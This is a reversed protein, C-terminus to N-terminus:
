KVLVPQGNHKASEYMAQIIAVAKRAEPGYTEADKGASWSDLIHRVNQVHLDIWIDTNNAGGGSTVPAPKNFSDLFGEDWYKKDRFAWTKLKGEAMATGNSGGVEIRVNSGPYMSTAGMLMGYAGSEFLISCVLTDEVEIEPHILSSAYASVQKIPGCIWQILDVAHISQNMIAGGGDLRWTGRWDGDRYYQDTRYWPTHSGGYTLKGFRGEVAADRMARHAVNWRNQFIGALRVDNNAAAAIMQDIRDVKIEMPKECIVNKGANMAMVAPNMHDGSPTCIHVVNVDEKALLQSLDSYVPVHAVGAKELTPKIRDPAVDCVAVLDIPYGQSKLIQILKIHWEGIVGVGVIASRYSKPPTTM